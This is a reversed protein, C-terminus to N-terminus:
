EIDVPDARLASDSKGCNSAQPRKTRGSPSQDPPVIQRLLNSLPEIVDLTQIPSREHQARHFL